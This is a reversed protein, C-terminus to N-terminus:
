RCATSSQHALTRGDKSKIMEAGLRSFARVCPGRAIEGLIAMLISIALATCLNAKVSHFYAAFRASANRSFNPEYNPNICFAPPVQNVLNPNPSHDPGTETKNYRNRDWGANRGRM